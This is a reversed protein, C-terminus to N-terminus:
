AAAPATELQKRVLQRVRRAVQEPPEQGTLELELQKRIAPTFQRALDWATQGEFDWSEELRLLCPYIERLAGAIVAEKRQQQAHAALFPALAKDRAEDLQSQSAGEPAENVAKAVAARAASTLAGGSALPVAWHLQAIMTQRNARDQNRQQEAQAQAQNRQQEARAEAQIRQREAEAQAQLEAIARCYPELAAEVARDLAPRPTGQPLKALVERIATTALEKGPESLGDPFRAWRVLHERLDGDAQAARCAEFEGAIVEV